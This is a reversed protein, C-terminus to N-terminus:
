FSSILFNQKPLSIDQVIVHEYLVYRQFAILSICYLSILLSHFSRSNNDNGDRRHMKESKVFQCQCCKKLNDVLM